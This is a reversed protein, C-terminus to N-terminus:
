PTEEMKCNEIEIRKGCNHCHYVHSKAYSLRDLNTFATCHPCRLHKRDLIAYAILFAIAPLFFIGNLFGAALCVAFLSLFVFALTIHKSKIM